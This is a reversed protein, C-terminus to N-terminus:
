FAAAMERRMTEDPSGQGAALLDAMHTPNSTGPDRLHGGSALDRIEPLVAGLNYLWSPPLPRCRNVSYVPCCVAAASRCSSPSVTQKAFPLIDNRKSSTSRTASSFSISPSSRLYDMLDNFAHPRYHTYGLYHFRGDAKWGRM